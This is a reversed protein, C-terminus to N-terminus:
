ACCTLAVLLTGMCVFWTLTVLLRGVCLVGVGSAFHGYVCWTLAVLLTGVYDWLTGMWLPFTTICITSFM